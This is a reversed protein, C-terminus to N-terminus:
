CLESFLVHFTKALHFAKGVIWLRFQRLIDSFIQYGSALRFIQLNILTNDDDYPCYGQLGNTCGRM